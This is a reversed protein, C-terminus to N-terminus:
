YGCVNVIKVVPGYNTYFVKKVYCHNYSYSNYHRYGHGYGGASASTPALAAASLTGIAALAIMTNRFM